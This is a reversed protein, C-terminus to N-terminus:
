EPFNGGSSGERVSGELSWDMRRAPGGDGLGITAKSLRSAGTPRNGTELSRRM